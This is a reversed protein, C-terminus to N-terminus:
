DCWDVLASFASGFADECTGGLKKQAQKTSFNSVVNAAVRLVRKGNDVKKGACKHADSVQLEDDAVDLIIKALAFFFRGSGQVESGQVDSGELDLQDQRSMNISYRM